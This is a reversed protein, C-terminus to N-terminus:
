SQRLKEAVRKMREQPALDGLRDSGGRTIGSYLKMTKDGSKEGMKPLDQALDELEEKTMKPARKMLLNPDVKHAEAVQLVLAELQEKQERAAITARAEDREKIVRETTGAINRLRTVESKPMIETEEVPPTTEGGKLPSAGVKISPTITKEASAPTDTM